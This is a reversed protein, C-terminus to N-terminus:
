EKKGDESVEFDVMKSDVLMSLREVPPDRLFGNMEAIQYGKFKVEIKFIHNAQGEESRSHITMIMNDRWETEELRKKWGTATDEVDEEILRDYFQRETDINYETAAHRGNETEASLGNGMQETNRNDRNIDKKQNCMKAKFKNFDTMEFLFDVTEKDEAEYAVIHQELTGIFDQFQEDTFQEQVRSQIVQEQIMIFEEHIDKYEHKNEEVSEDFLQCNKLYFETNSHVFQADTMLNRITKFIELNTDTPQKSQDM